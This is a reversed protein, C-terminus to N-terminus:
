RVSIGAYGVVAAPDAGADASTAYKELTAERAGLARAAILMAVVAAYGCMSIRERRVVEFLEDPSLALIRDIAQRDKIRTVADREYHNMDSSAIIIVARGASEVATAIAMGLSQLQTYDVGGIAIPVFSFTQAERQLFPLQVELSHERGHAVADEKLAPCNRQISESIATDVPVDGLPTVWCGASTTALPAGRGFHNPGLIVYCPSAPLKSYVAGAVPGSYMYGAHPVVCGKVDSRKQEAQISPMLFQDLQQILLESDLPYFLGAVAPPRRFPVQM